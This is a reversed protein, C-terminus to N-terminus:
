RGGGLRSWLRRWWVKSRPAEVFVETVDSASSDLHLHEAAAQDRRAAAAVEAKTLPRVWQVWGRRVFYHSNCIGGGISPSLSISSGNFTLEWGAPSLPTVVRDGCGCCCSHAVTKYDMSVFLVGDELEDPIFRVFRHDLRDIRPSM